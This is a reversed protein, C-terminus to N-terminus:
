LSIREVINRTVEKETRNYLDTTRADSHGLLYQVQERAVKQKLLNTATTARFSHCCFAGEPLGAGKLRRKVIRLLDNGNLGRDTLERKRRRATRFLPSKDSRGELKAAELYREMQLQLDHRAPVQHLKGGKEGFNFYWSRGDTVYDSMRLRAVAGARAATYALIMLLTRDRVGIVDGTDVSDILTRVQRDDFAPTRGERVSYKPGRVSSAPNLVVGHYMQQNDFFHRLAALHQKKTPPSLPRGDKDNVHHELYDGVLFSTVQRLELGRIHCWGLFTDVARKYAKRTNPNSIRAKFFDAYAYETQPGADRVIEPPLVERQLRELDDQGVLVRDASNPSVVAPLTDSSPVSTWPEAVKLAIQARGCKRHDLSGPLNPPGRNAPLEHHAQPSSRGDDDLIISSAFEPRSRRLNFLRAPSGSRLRGCM